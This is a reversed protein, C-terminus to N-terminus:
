QILEKLEEIEVELNELELSRSGVYVLVDQNISLLFEQINKQQTELLLSVPNIKLHRDNTDLGTLLAILLGQKHKLNTLGMDIPGDYDLFKSKWSGVWNLQGSFSSLQFLSRDMLRFAFQTKNEYLKASFEEKTFIEAATMLIPNLESVSYVYHVRLAELLKHLISRFHSFTMERDHFLGTQFFSREESLAVKLLMEKTDLLNKLYDHQKQFSGKKPTRTTEQKENMINVEESTSDVSIPLNQLRFLSFEPASIGKEGDKFTFGLNSSKETSLLELLEETVPISLIEEFNKARGELWDINKLFNETTGELPIKFVIGSTTLIGNSGMDSTVVSRLTKSDTNFNKRLFPRKIRGNSELWCTKFYGDENVELGHNPNGLFVEIDFVYSFTHILDGLTVHSLTKFKDITKDTM